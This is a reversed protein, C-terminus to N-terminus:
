LCEASLQNNVVTGNCYKSNKDQADYLRNGVVVNFSQLDAGSVVTNLFFVHSADEAYYLGLLKFTSPDAGTIKQGRYYVNTKDYAYDQAWTYSALENIDNSGPQYRRDFVDFSGADAGIIPSISEGGYYAHVADKEYM